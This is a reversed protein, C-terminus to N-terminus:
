LMFTRVTVMLTIRIITGNERISPITWCLSWVDSLTAYARSLAKSVHRMRMLCIWADGGESGHIPPCADRGLEQHGSVHTIRHANISQQQSRSMRALLSSLAPTAVPATGAVKGGSVARLILILMAQIILIVGPDHHPGLSLPRWLGRLSSHGRREVTTLLSFRIM